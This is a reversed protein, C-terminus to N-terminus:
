NRCLNGNIGIKSDTSPYLFCATPSTPVEFAKVLSEENNLDGAVVEVGQAALSQAKTSSPNRTIARIKYTGAKLAADIVSAGQTGTAGIVTLLPAM